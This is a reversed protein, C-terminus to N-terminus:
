MAAHCTNGSKRMHKTAEGNWLHRRGMLTSVTGQMAVEIRFGGIERASGM